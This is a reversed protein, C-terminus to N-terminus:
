LKLKFSPVRNTLKEEEKIQPFLMTVPCFSVAASWLMFAAPALLLLYWGLNLLAFAVLVTGMVARVLRGYPGSMFAVFKRRDPTLKM